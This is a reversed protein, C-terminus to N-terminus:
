GRAIDVSRYSMVVRRSTASRAPTLRAVAERTTVPDARTRASVRSRTSRAIRSRSYTGGPASVPRARDPQEDGLEDIRDEGREGLRHLRLRRLGAERRDEAVDAPRGDGLGLVDLHKELPADVPHDEDRALRGVQAGVVAVVRPQEPLARPDDEDVAGDVREVHRVDADVLARRALERGLVQEVEAMLPDAEDRAGVAEPRGALLRGPAHERQSAAPDRGVAEDGVGLEADLAAARRHARQERLAFRGVPTM